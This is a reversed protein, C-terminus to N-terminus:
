PTGQSGVKGGQSPRKPRRKARPKRSKPRRKRSKAKAEDRRKLSRKRSKKRPEARRRRQGESRKDDEAGAESREAKAEPDDTGEATGESKEPSAEAQGSRPKEGGGAAAGGAEGAAAVIRGSDDRHRGAGSRLGCEDPHGAPGARVRRRFRAASRCHNRGGAADHASGAGRERSRPRTGVSHRSPTVSSAPIGRRGVLPRGWSGVPRGEAAEVRLARVPRDGAQASGSGGGLLDGHDIAVTGVALAAIVGATAKVLGSVGLVGAGGAGIGGACGGWRGRGLGVRRRARVRPAGEGAGRGRDGADALDGGPDGPARPDRGPLPSLPPLRSPPRPDRAPDAVRRCRLGAEDGADCDMDRGSQMQSLGRRAEYLAQRAAGPSTELAAGIEGFDLGSLERM